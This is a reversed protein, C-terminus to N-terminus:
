NEDEEFKLDYSDCKATEDIQVYSEVECMGEINNRCDYAGCYM